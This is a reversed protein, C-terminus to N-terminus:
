SQAGFLFEFLPKGVKVDEVEITNAEERAMKVAAILADVRRLLQDKDLVRAAGSLDTQIWWGEVVDETYEKVQAPHEKTPQVVVDHRVMKKTKTRRIPETAYDDTAPRYSWDRAPDLTPLKAVFTRVDVLQKELFLLYTVPIAESIVRGDVALKVVAERNGVEQMAVLDFLRGWAERAQQILGSVRQQLKKSDSPYREGDEDKPEYTKTLGYFADTKQAEHYLRTVEGQTRSKQGSVLAIVQNLKVM